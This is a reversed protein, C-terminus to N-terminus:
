KVKLDSGNARCPAFVSLQRIVPKESIKILPSSCADLTARAFRNEDFDWPETELFRYNEVKDSEESAWLDFDFFTFRVPHEGNRRRKSAFFRKDIDSSTLASHRFFTQLLSFFFHGWVKRLKPVEACSDHMAGFSSEPNSLLEPAATSIRGSSPSLHTRVTALM